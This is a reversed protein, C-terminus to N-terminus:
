NKRRRNRALYGTCGVLTIGSIWLGLYFLSQPRFYLILTFNEGQGLKDPEVYWGNAYGNVLYHKSIDPERFLYMVDSPTFRMLHKAEKVRLKPYDAITEGFLQSGRSTYQPNYLSWGEHFSESFVLWFPEEAEEVRVEYKTPNIRRFAIGPGKGATHRSAPEIFIWDVEFNDEGGLLSSISHKGKRLYVKERFSVNKAEEKDKFRSKFWYKNEDIEFVAKSFIFDPPLVLEGNEGEFWDESTFDLFKINKISFKYEGAKNSPKCDFWWRKHPYLELELLEYHKEDPFHKRLKGLAHYIFRDSKRVTPWSCIGRVYEDVVGDKSFDVGLVIEIIQIESDDVEYTLELWPSKTLDVKIGDRRMQVFEDEEPDGDFYTSLILEGSEVVQSYTVDSLEFSWKELEEQLGLKLNLGESGPIKARVFNPSLKANIIYESDDPIDFYRNALNGGKGSFLYGANGGSKHVIRKIEKRVKEIEDERLLSLVLEGNDGADLIEVKHKGKELYVGGIKKWRTGGDKLDGAAPPIDKGDIKVRLESVMEWDARIASCDVWLEYNGNKKVRVELKQARIESKQSLEVACDRWNSDKLVVSTFPLQCDDIPNENRWKRIQEGFLLAPKGDLYTTYSMPGLVEANGVVVTPIESSYIHPLFYEDPVKYLDFYDNRMLPHGLDLDEYLYSDKSVTDKQFVLYGVNNLSFAKPSKLITQIIKKNVVGIGYGSERYIVPKKTIWSLIDPGFYPWNKNVYGRILPISLVKSDEKTNDLLKGMEYYQGPIAYGKQDPAYDAQNYFKHGFYVPYFIGINLAIIIYVVANKKGFLNCLYYTSVSFLFAYFMISGTVVSSTTRFIKALPFHVIVYRYFQGLPPNAGKAIFIFFLISLLLTCILKRGKKDKATFLVGLVLIIWQASTWIVFVPGTLFHKLHPYYRVINYNFFRAIYWLTAIGFDANGRSHGLGRALTAGVGFFMNHILPILVWSNLLISLSFVVILRISINRISITSIQRFLLSLCLCALSFVILIKPQPLDTFFFLNLMVSFLIAYLVRGKQLFKILLYFCVPFGYLPLYANVLLFYIPNFTFIVAALFALEANNYKTNKFLERYSLYTFTFGIILLLVLLIKQSIFAPIGALSFLYYFAFWFFYAYQFSEMGNDWLFVKRINNAPDLPIM